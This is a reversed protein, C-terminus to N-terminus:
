FRVGELRVWVIGDVVQVPLQTLRLGTPISEKEIVEKGQMDFALNWCVSVYQKTLPDYRLPIRFSDHHWTYVVSAGDANQSKRVFVDCIPKDPLREWADIRKASVTKLIPTGDSPLESTKAVVFWSQTAIDRAGVLFATGLFLLALLPAAIATIAFSKKTTSHM